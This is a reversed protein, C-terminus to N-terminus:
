DPQYLITQSGDRYYFRDAAGGRDFTVAGFANWAIGWAAAIGFLWRFPRAGLALLVFLLPSYDNSFRYSFQRWGSNQYLLDYAAPLAASIAVVFYLWGTKKPRVLWLYIPTTFWLALGHENIQFPASGAHEVGPARPWPLITLMVGLNKALYHYGFLGWKQMRAAWAVGLHEHGFATPSPNHFRTTNMWSAAGIAVLIPLAFLACRKALARVDLRGLTARLREVFAGETPLGEECSVRVAELAFVLSVLIVHPRTLFICAAMLGAVIPREADIAALLYIGLLGVCVVHEAFWVTGEVATFFYVTGFAFVLALVANQVESRPSRDTRRLKELVLFLFAPGLGALWIIFQGDRFEEPSGALKVLPLMLVAPFPPFSIFTKGEFQAFDNNQAYAPPGNPLDQRGHLWADALLALHNFQTHQGLRQAGAVAAFVGATVVYIAFAIVLRRTRQTAALAESLRGVM